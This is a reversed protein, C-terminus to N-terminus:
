EEAEDFTRLTAGIRECAIRLSDEVESLTKKAVEDSTAALLRAIAVLVDGTLKHTQDDRIRARLKIVRDRSNMTKTSTEVSAAVKSWERGGLMQAAEELYVQRVDAVMECIADQLDLLSQRQFDRRRDTRSESRATAKAERERSYARADRFWEVLLGSVYGGFATMTPVLWSVNTNSSATAPADFM